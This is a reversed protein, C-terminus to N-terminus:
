ILGAKAIDAVCLTGIIKGDEVVALTSVRRDMRKMKEVAEVVLIDPEITLPNKTMVNDICEEMVQAGRSGILRRLDGDTFIGIYHGEQNVVNVCGIPRKCMEMVAQGVNMGSEIIANEEDKKMLDSVKMTLKRGLLGNPHFVAFDKSTFGRMKSVVVALADGLVLSATTTTSPVLNGLFAEEMEPFVLTEESYQELTSNKRGVISYLKTGIMQISPLLGLIEDTEGSNSLAIVIDHKTLLGLDGHLGEAPHMYYAKIGISAMTAAVKECIHGSKGMGTWVVRGSCAHIREALTVFAGDLSNQLKKIGELEVAFVNRGEQLIDMIIDTGKAKGLCLVM